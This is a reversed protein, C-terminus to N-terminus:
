NLEKFFQTLSIGFYQCISDLTSVTINHNTSEIRGIHIGTDNYFEEQTLNREERLRKVKLSIKKILVSNRLRAM